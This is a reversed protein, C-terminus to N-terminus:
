RVFQTPISKPICFAKVYDHVDFCEMDNTFGEYKDLYKPIYIIIICDSDNTIIDKISLIINDALQRSNEEVSTKNPINFEKWLANNIPPITLPLKYTNLFGNYPLMYANNRLVEHKTNLQALFHSFNQKEGKPLVIALKIEETIGSPAYMTEYPASNILGRMPHYDESLQNKIKDYFALLPDKNVIGNFIVRKNITNLSKQSTNVLGILATQKGITFNLEDNEAFCYKYVSQGKTLISHWETIYSYVGSNSKYNKNVRTFFADNIGKIANKDFTEKDCEIHCKPTIILLNHSKYKSCFGIDIKIGDYSQYIINNIRQQSNKTKDWIYKNGDSEINDNQKVLAKILSKRMLRFLTYQNMKTNDFPVTVFQLSRNFNHQMEVKDGLFVICGKFSEAVINNSENLKLSIKKWNEREAETLEFQYYCDPCKLLFTNTSLFGNIKGDIMSFGKIIRTDINSILKNIENKKECDKGYLTDALDLMVSDFGAGKIYFAKRDFSEIKEFLKCVKDSPCEDVGVWFM